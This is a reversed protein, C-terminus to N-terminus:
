TGGSEATVNRRIRRDRERPLACHLEKHAVSPIKESTGSGFLLEPSMRGSTTAFSM